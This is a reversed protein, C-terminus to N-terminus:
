GRAHNVADIDFIFYTIAAVGKEVHYGLIRIFEKEAMADDQEIYMAIQTQLGHIGIEAAQAAREARAIVSFIPIGGTKIPLYFNTLNNGDESALDREEILGGAARVLDMAQELTLATDIKQGSVIVEATGQALLEQFTKM